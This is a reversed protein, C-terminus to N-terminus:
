RESGGLAMFALDALLPRVQSILPNERTPYVRNTLLVVFIGTDPDIWISTGTFGTHGFSRPGFYEGSSSPKDRSKTDWGLARSSMMTDVVTTFLDVTTSDLFPEGEYRGSQAMLSAFRAVDRASAFLGAHGATGGLLWANEDHVEGQVLRHRFYDDRETPVVAPDSVGTSRFGTAAMGLPEFIHERAYASFEQGTIAELVLVLVIMSFDSYRYQQSPASDLPIAFISDVVAQRTRVGEAYFTRFPTFGATHTLLQRVTIDAKEPNDFSPLYSQVTSDLDLRDQEYLQMAATTTAIVKTLSALDFVSRPTVPRDSEYTYTGYGTLKHVQDYQGIAVAAGPFAGRKIFREVLADVRAFIRTTDVGASM